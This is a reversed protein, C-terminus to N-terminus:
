HAFIANALPKNLQRNSFSIITYDGSPEIMKVKEVYADTSFFLRFQSIYKKLKSDKPIFLVEYGEESSKFYSIEFEDDKFLDGTISNVILNNLQGFLKNSSLNVDSKKGDDNIYLTKDKFLVSYQFPKTYEWKVLDPQKLALNGSTEIDNSLFDLHKLQVFDVTMTKTKEAQEQVKKKLSSAELSSLPTQASLTTALLFVIYFFKNM